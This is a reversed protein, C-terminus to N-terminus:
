SDLELEEISMQYLHKKLHCKFSSMNNLLFKDRVSIPLAAWLRPFNASITYKFSDTKPTIHDNFLLNDSHRVNITWNSFCFVDSNLICNCAFCISLYKRRNSLDM